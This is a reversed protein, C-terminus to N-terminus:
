GFVYRVSAAIGVAILSAIAALTWDPRARAIGRVHDLVLSQKGNALAARRPTM